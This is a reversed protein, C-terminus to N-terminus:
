RHRLGSRPCLLCPLFHLLHWLPRRRPADDDGTESLRCLGCSKSGEKRGSDNQMMQHVDQAPSPIGFNFKQTQRPPLACRLAGIAGAVKRFHGFTGPGQPRPSQAPLRCRSPAAGAFTTEFRPAARHAPPGTGPTRGSLSMAAPSKGFIASRAQAKRACERIRPSRRKRM